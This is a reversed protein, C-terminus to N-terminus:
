NGIRGLSRFLVREWCRAFATCTEHVSTPHEFLEYDMSDPVSEGYYRHEVIVQNAGMAKALESQYNFGRSYGETVMVVPLDASGIHCTFVSIFRVMKLIIM